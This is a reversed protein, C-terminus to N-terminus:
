DLKVNNAKAADTFISEKGKQKLDNWFAGLNKEADSVYPSKVESYMNYAKFMYDCGKTFDEAFYFARGAGYYGEPNDPYGEILKLYTQAANAYEQKYEYAVAKCQLPVTGYPDIELSKNYCEIAKDYNGQKRYCLGLNDWAFAFEPDISIAKKYAELAKDNKESEDYKIGENYAKIAEPNSSMSKDSQLNDGKILDQTSKCNAMMYDQIERFNKDAYLTINAESKVGDKSSAKAKKLTEKMDKMLGEMQKSMIVGSICENVKEVIEDKTINNPIKDTCECATEALKKIERREKKDQASLNGVSLMALVLLMLKTVVAKKM